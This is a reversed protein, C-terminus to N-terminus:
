RTHIEIAATEGLQVSLADLQEPRVPALFDIHREVGIFRYLAM